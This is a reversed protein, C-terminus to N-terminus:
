PNDIIEDQAQAAQWEVDSIAKIAAISDATLADFTRQVDVLLERRLKRRHLEDQKAAQTSYADLNVTM